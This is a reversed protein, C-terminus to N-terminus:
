GTAGWAPAHISVYRAVIEEDEAEHRAGRPRTSQFPENADRRSLIRNDRGVRARPNFCARLPLFIFPLTDRGVRARPNFSFVVFCFSMQSQDRGVRARPNFSQVVWLNIQSAFPRAGRPRTSQFRTRNTWSRLRRADRGVRARPNFSEGRQRKTNGKTDRGVRARPNFGAGM